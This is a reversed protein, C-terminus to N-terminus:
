QQVNLNRRSRRSKRRTPKKMLAHRDQAAQAIARIAKITKMGKASIKPTPETTLAALKQRAHQKRKLTTADRKQKIEKDSLAQKRAWRLYKQEVTQRPTTYRQRVYNIIQDAKNDNPITEITTRAVFPTSMNGQHLMRVRIEGLGLDTYHHPPFRGIQRSLIEADTASSRFAIITGINGFMSAILDDGLQDIYQTSTIIGLKYKRAESYASTLAQTKLNHQEDIFLFHPVRRSYPLAAQNLASRIISSVALSGLLAAPQTGLQGKSLRIILISNKSVADSFKYAPKFPSLLNRVFPNGLIKDIKNQIPVIYEERRTKSYTEFNKEFFDRVSPTQIHKIVERRYRTDELMMPISLFSPRLHDPADLIAAVVNRLIWDMREGWSDEWIHRAAETFDFAVTSRDDSAINYFPNIPLVHETDMPDCFVVDNRRALPTANLADRSLDGNFDILTCGFGKRVVKAYMSLLASSKGVGTQGNLWVHQFADTVNLGFPQQGGWAGNTTGIQIHFDSAMLCLWGAADSLLHRIDKRGTKSPIGIFCNSRQGSDFKFLLDWSAGTTTASCAITAVM